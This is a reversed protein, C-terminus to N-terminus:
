EKQNVYVHTGALTHAHTRQTTNSIFYVTYSSLTKQMKILHTNQVIDMIMLLYCSSALTWILEIANM